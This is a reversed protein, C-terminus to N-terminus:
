NSMEKQRKRALALAEDPTKQTKKIFGHLSVLLGEHLFFLGWAIKHACSTRVEWLGRGMPRCIPMGVSWRWQM